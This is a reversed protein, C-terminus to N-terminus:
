ALDYHSKVYKDKHDYDYKKGWNDDICIAVKVVESLAGAEDKVQYTFYDKEDKWDKDKNPKYCFKGTEEDFKFYKADSPGDVLVFDLDGGESDADNLSVDGYLKGKEKVYFKDDEGKPPTNVPEPMDKVCIKVKAWDVKGYKDVVKYKFYDYGYYDKNPTYTFEGTAKDVTVTGHKPQTYYKVSLNYGKDNSLLNGTIPSDENGEVYDKNADVKYKKYWKKHGHDDDDKHPPKYGGKGPMTGPKLIDKLAAM